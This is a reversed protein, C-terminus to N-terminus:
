APAGRLGARVRGQLLLEPARPRAALLLEGRGAAIVHEHIAEFLRWPFPPIGMRCRTTVFLEHFRRMGSLSADVEISVGNKRAKNISGRLSKRNLSGWVADHAPTLDVQTTVWRQRM